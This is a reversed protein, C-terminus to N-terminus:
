YIITDEDGDKGGKVESLKVDYVRGEKLKYIRIEEPSFSIVLSGGYRKIEKRM